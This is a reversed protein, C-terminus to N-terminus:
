QAGQQALHAEAVAVDQTRQRAVNVSFELPGPGRVRSGPCWLEEDDRECAGQDAGSGNAVARSLDEGAARCGVRRWSSGAWNEFSAWILRSRNSPMM